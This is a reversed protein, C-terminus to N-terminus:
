CLSDLMAMEGEIDEAVSRAYEESRSALGTLMDAILTAMAFSYVSSGYRRLRCVQRALFSVARAEAFSWEGRAMACHLMSQASDAVPSVSALWAQADASSLDASKGNSEPAVFFESRQRAVLMRGITNAAIAFDYDADREVLLSVLQPGNPMSGSLLFPIADAMELTPVSAAWSAVVEASPNLRSAAALAVLMLDRWGTQWLEDCDEISLEEQAAIDRAHQLSTGYNAKYADDLGRMIQAVEGNMHRRVQFKLDRLKDPSM